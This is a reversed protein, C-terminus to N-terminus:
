EILREITDLLNSQDFATKVIYADVGVEIGRRKDEEKELATVIIIPVEKYNEEKRLQATLEFGDMKPMEVDTVVLNYRRRMCKELGDKGDVAVDVHYGASELISRELERTTISDDVVLINYILVAKDKGIIEVPAGRMESIKKATNMLDLVNIIIVVEGGSLITAGGVHEVNTLIEGLHKVIVEKESILEDIIFGISEEVMTIVVVTLVNNDYVNKAGKLRLLKELRLLPIVKNHIIVVERGGIFRIEQPHIKVIEDITQTPIAFTEGASRILVSSSIALTVPIKLIFTTGKGVTTDVKIQGKLKDEVNKKVVDMGVGRGSIDTIIEKTTFGHSFILYILERPSLKEAETPTIIGKKIATTRVKEHDIGCGDDEIKVTVYDGEQYASFIIKGERPKGVSMRKEPEEIGHDVCNRIIHMLPDKIEELIKKDVATDTGYSKFSIEKKYDKSLDRVIRPFIDFVTSIPLMRMRIVEDELDHNILNLQLTSDTYKDLLSKIEEKIKQFINEYKNFDESLRKGDKSFEKKIQNFFSTETISLNHLEKMEELLEEMKTREMVMKGVLNLLEDLKSIKIRITEDIQIKGKELVTSVDEIIHDKEPEVPSIFTEEKSIPKERKLSRKLEGQCGKELEECLADVDIGSEKKKIEADILLGISDVSEFLLDSIQEDLKIQKEKVKGLIDEMKHAIKNISSLGVVKASGKLTHAERFIENIVEDNDPHTELILLGKNLNQLREDTEEKFKSIFISRDFKGTM